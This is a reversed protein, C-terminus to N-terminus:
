IIKLLVDQMETAETFKLAQLLSFEEGVQHLILPLSDDKYENQISIEMEEKMVDAQIVLPLPECM